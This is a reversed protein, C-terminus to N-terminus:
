SVYKLVCYVAWSPMWGNNKGFEQIEADDLSVSVGLELCKKMHAKSKM